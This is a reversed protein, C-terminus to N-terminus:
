EFIVVKFVTTYIKRTTKGPEKGWKERKILPPTM